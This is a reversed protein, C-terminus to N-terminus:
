VEDERHCLKASAILHSDSQGDLSLDELTFM